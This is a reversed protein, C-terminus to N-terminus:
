NEQYHYRNLLSSIEADTKGLQINSEAKRLPSILKAAVIHACEIHAPCNCEWGLASFTVTYPAPDSGFAKIVAMESNHSVVKIRGNTIYDNAKAAVTSM